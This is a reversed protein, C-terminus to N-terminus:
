PGVLGFLIALTYPVNGHCHFKPWFLGFIVFIAMVETTLSVDMCLKTKLYPKHWRPIWRHCERVCPVFPTVMAVLLTLACFAFCKIPGFCIYDMTIIHTQQM